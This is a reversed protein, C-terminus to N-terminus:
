SRSRDVLAAVGQSSRTNVIQVLQKASGELVEAASQSAWEFVRKEEEKFEREGDFILARIGVGAKLAEELLHWGELLYRGEIERTKKHHFKRLYNVRAKSLAIAM